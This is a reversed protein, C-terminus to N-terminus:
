IDGNVRVKKKINLIHSRKTLHQYYLYDVQDDILAIIDNKIAQGQHSIRIAIKGSKVDVCINYPTIRIETVIMELLIMLPKQYVDDVLGELSQCIVDSCTEDEYITYTRM